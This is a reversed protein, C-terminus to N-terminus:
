TRLHQKKRTRKGRWGVVFNWDMKEREDTTYAVEKTLIGTVDRDEGDEDSNWNCGNFCSWNCFQMEVQIDLASPM